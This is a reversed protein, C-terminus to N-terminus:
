HSGAILRGVAIVVWILWWYQRWGTRAAAKPRAPRKARTLSVAPAVRRPRELRQIEAQEHVRAAKISKLRAWTGAREGFLPANRRADADEPTAAAGIPQALLREFEWRDVAQRWTVLGFALREVLTTLAWALWLLLAGIGAAGIWMLGEFYASVRDPPAEDAMMTFPVSLVVAAVVLTAARPWARALAAARRLPALRTSALWFRRAHVAARRAVAISVAFVATVVATWLADPWRQFALLGRTTGLDEALAGAYVLALLLAVIVDTSLLLGGALRRRAKENVNSRSAPAGVAEQLADWRQEWGRTEALPVTFAFWPARAGPTFLRRLWGGTRHRAFVLDRSMTLLLALRRDAEPPLWPALRSEQRHWGFARGADFMLLLPPDADQLFWQLLAFELAQRDDISSRASRRLLTRLWLLAAEEGVDDRRQRVAAVREALTPETRPAPEPPRPRARPPKPKPPRPPPADPPRAEIRVPRPQPIPSVFPSSGLVRVPPADGPPPPADLVPAEADVRVPPRPPSLEPHSGDVPAADPRPPPDIPPSSADVRVPPGPPDARPVDLKPAEADVRTPPQRLPDLSPATADIRVPPGLPDVSPADLVPADADVRVPPRPPALEPRSTDVQAPDAILPERGLDDRTDDRVPAAEDNGAEDGADDGPEADDDDAWAEGHELAAQRAAEEQAAIQAERRRAAPLAVEYAERVRAFEEPHSDPRYQKILAAYARRVDAVAADHTLGLVQWPSLRPAM